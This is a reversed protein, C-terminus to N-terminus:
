RHHDVHLRARRNPTSTKKCVSGEREIGFGVTDGLGSCKFSFWWSGGSWSGAQRVALTPLVLLNLTTSTVLGGLIVIALPGEIEKGPEGSGIALPLLGMRTVLATMLIPALREAAGEIATEPGWGRGEVAVLHEYHSVLMISNRLTIGFLTVFGVLSGLSLAGGTLFVALVGGVLALPLNLLVLLLNRWHGMVISLLLVIGLAALSSHVLLERTSRSQAEATGGFEIYTGAPLAVKESVRRQADAVVSAVDRGQANATVVQM